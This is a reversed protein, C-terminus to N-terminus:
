YDSSIGVKRASGFYVNTSNSFIRLGTFGIVGLYYDFIAVNLYNRFYLNAITGSLTGNLSKNGDPGLIWVNGSAPYFQRGESSYIYYGYFIDSLIQLQNINTAFFLCLPGVLTGWIFAWSAWSLIRGPIKAIPGLFYTHEKAEGHISYQSFTGRVLRQAQKVSLGEFLGYTDLEIIFDNFVVNVEDRSSTQYVREKFDSLSQQLNQYQERTLKVTTDGYGKIGCVQTTVEVLDDDQSAKVINFNISPAFAVGVFLLIIGLALGKRILPNRDM